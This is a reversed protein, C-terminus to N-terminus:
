SQVGVLCCEHWIGPLSELEYLVDGGHYYGVAKVVGIKGAYMLQESQLANHLAWTRRFKELIPLSAIM